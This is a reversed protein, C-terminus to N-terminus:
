FERAARGLRGRVVSSGLVSEGLRDEKRRSEKM